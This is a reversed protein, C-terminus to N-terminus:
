DSAILGLEAARAVAETRNAAGLKELIHRIHTKVTNESIFLVAAIHATTGGKTLETLVEQERQSLLTAQQQSQASGAAQMVRATVEPSLVGQGAAVQRIAQFLEDPEANKLLYGDAGAALAKILDEDNDSVTLILVRVATEEKLIRTAEVGSGGPMHIDMLIVDLPRERSFQVVEPGSSAEGVIQFDPQEKIIGVIGHRFLVHDDAILLKIPEPM